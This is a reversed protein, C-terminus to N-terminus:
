RSSPSNRINQSTTSSSPGNPALGADTMDGTILVCDLPERAHIADLQRLLRKFRENGRPGLRGSELRFGYREGVGHVDSLHAIRWRPAASPATQFAKLTRPPDMAADAFGWLLAAVGLYAAVMVASNALAISAVRSWSKLESIDSFLYADPWAWLVVLAALLFVVIGAVAATTARLKGRKVDGLRRAFLREALHRLAERCAAYAPQVVVSNLSWFSLEVWRFLPRWGFWGLALLGGILLVSWVGIVLSAMKNTVAILWSSILMPALGILLGPLILLLVWAVILKTLSIEVLLSGALSLLSRSKTSSADDEIDGFRPDIISKLDSKAPKPAAKSPMAAM